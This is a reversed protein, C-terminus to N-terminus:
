NKVGNKKDVESKSVIIGPSEITALIVYSTEPQRTIKSLTMVPVVQVSHLRVTKDFSFESQFVNRVQSLGAPLDNSQAIITAFDM